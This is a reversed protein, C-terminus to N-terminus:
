PYMGAFFFGVVLFAAGFRGGLFGVSDRLGLGYRARRLGWAQDQRDYANGTPPVGCLSVGYATVRFGYFVGSLSQFM